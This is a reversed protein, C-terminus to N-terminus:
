RSKNYSCFLCRLKRKTLAAHQTVNWSRINKSEVQIKTKADYLNFLFFDESM